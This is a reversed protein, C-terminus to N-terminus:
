KCKAITISGSVQGQVTVKYVSNRGYNRNINGSRDIKRDGLFGAHQVNPDAETLKGPCNCDEPLLIILRKKQIKTGFDPSSSVFKDFDPLVIKLFGLYYSWALGAGVHIPVAQPAPATPEEGGSAIREAVLDSVSSLDKVIIIEYQHAFATNSSLLYRITRVFEVMQKHLDEKSITIDDSQSMEYMTLLPTSFEAVFYTDVGQRTFKYVSNKGYNRSVSGARSLQRDDLNGVHQIRSDATALSKPCYSDEPMLMFFRKFKIKDGFEKSSSVFDQFGSLIINLFGLFYGWALGQAADPPFDGSDM